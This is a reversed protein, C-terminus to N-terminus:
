FRRFKQNSAPKSNKHEIQFSLRYKMLPLSVLRVHHLFSYKVFPDVAKLPAKHKRYDRYLLVFGVCTAALFIYLIVEM